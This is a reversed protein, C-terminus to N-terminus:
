LDNKGELKGVARGQLRCVLELKKPVNALEPM